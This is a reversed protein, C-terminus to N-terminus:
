EDGGEDSGSQITINTDFDHIVVNEHVDEICRRKDGAAPFDEVGGDHGDPPGDGEDDGRRDRIVEAENADYGGRSQQVQRIRNRGDKRHPVIYLVIRVSFNLAFSEIRRRSLHRSMSCCCLAPHTSKDATTRQLDGFVHPM